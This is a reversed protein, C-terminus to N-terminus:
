SSAASAVRLNFLCIGPNRQNLRILEPLIPRPNRPYLRTLFCFATPLFCHNILATLRGFIHLCFAVGHVGGFYSVPSSRLLFLGPDPKRDKRNQARFLKDVPANMSKALCPASRRASFLIPAFHVRHASQRLPLFKDLTSLPIKHALCFDTPPLLWFFDRDEDFALSPGARLM